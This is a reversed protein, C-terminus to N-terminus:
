PTAAPKAAQFGVRILRVYAIPAGTKDREPMPDWIKPLEACAVKAMAEGFTKFNRAIRRQPQTSCSKFLGHQDIEVPLWVEGQRPWNDPLKEVDILYDPGATLRM